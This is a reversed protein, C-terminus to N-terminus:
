PGVEVSGSGAISKNVAGLVKAARIDGSGAINASLSDAVGDYDVDGSGMISVNLSGARGGGIRVNGGGALTVNVPGSAKGVRVDGAGAIAINLGDAVSTTTASAAGAVSLHMRGASGTHLRDSGAAAVNLDDEVNAVTWEGCGAIRLRLSHARGVSGYLAGGADVTANEPVRVVVQPLDDYGVRGVRPVDVVQDGDGNCDGYTHVGWFLGIWERGHVITRGGLGKQVYLPLNPNTKLVVVQVDSRNEPIIVVRASVDRFEITQASALGAWGLVALATLLSLAPRM